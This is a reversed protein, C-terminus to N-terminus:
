SENYAEVLTKIANNFEAQTTPLPVEDINCLAWRDFDEIRDGRQLMNYCNVRWVFGKGKFYHWYATNRATWSKGYLRLGSQRVWHRWQKPLKM